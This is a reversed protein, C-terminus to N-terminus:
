VVIIASSMENAAEEATAKGPATVKTINIVYRTNRLVQGFPHGTLKSDFDVRYFLEKSTDGDYFGGVVVCMANLKEEDTKAEKCEPMYMAMAYSIVGLGYDTFGPFTIWEGEQPTAGAPLSPAAVKTTSGGVMAEMSPMLQVEGVPRFLALSQIVFSKSGEELNKDVDVRALTRIMPIEVENTTTGLGEVEKEGTMTACQSVWVNTPMVIAKRMEAERTGRPPLTGMVDVGTLFENYNAVVILKVQTWNIKVEAEFGTEETTFNTAVTKVGVVAYDLVYEEGSRAMVIVLLDQFIYDVENGFDLVRTTAQEMREPATLWIKVTAKQGEERVPEVEDQSIGMTCGGLGMGLGLGMALITIVRKMEGLNDM